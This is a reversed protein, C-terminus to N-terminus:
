HGGCGHQCISEPAHCGNSIYNLFYDLRGAPTTPSVAAFSGNDVDTVFSEMLNLLSVTTDAYFVTPECVLQICHRAKLAAMSGLRAANPQLDFATADTFPNIKICPVDLEEIVIKVPTKECKVEDCPCPCNSM